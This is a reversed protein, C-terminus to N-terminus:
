ATTASTTTGPGGAPDAGEGARPADNGLYRLEACLYNWRRFLDLANERALRSALPSRAVRHFFPVVERHPVCARMLRQFKPHPNRQHGADCLVGLVSLDGCEATKQLLSQEDIEEIHCILWDLVVWTLRGSERCRATSEAIVEEPPRALVAPDAEALLVAGGLCHWEKFLRDLPDEM